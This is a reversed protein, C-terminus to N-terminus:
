YLIHHMIIILLNPCSSSSANHFYLRGLGLFLSSSRGKERGDDRLMKESARLGAAGGEVGTGEAETSILLLLVSETDSGCGM